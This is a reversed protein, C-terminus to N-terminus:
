EEPSYFELKGRPKYARRVAVKCGTEPDRFRMAWLSDLDYVPTEQVVEHTDQVVEQVEQVVEPTDQVVEQNNKKAM